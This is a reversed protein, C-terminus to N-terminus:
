LKEILQFKGKSGEKENNEKEERNEESFYSILNLDNVL